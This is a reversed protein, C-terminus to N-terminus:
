DKIAEYGQRRDEYTVVGAELSDMLIEHSRIVRGDVSVVIRDTPYGSYVRYVVQGGESEKMTCLLYDAGISAGITNLRHPLM